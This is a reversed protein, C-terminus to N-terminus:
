ILLRHTCSKGRKHRAMLVLLILRRVAEVTMKLLAMLCIDVVAVVPLELAVVAVPLELAVVAAPLELAVMVVLFVQDELGELDELAELIRNQPELLFAFVWYFVLLELSIM